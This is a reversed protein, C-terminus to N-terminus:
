YGSKRPSYVSVRGEHKGNGVQSLLMKIKRRILDDPRANGQRCDRISCWLLQLGQEVTRSLGGGPTMGSKVTGDFECRVPTATNFYDRQKQGRESHSHMDVRFSTKHM